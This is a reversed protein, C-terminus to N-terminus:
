WSLGLIKTLFWIEGMLFGLFIRVLWEQFRNIGLYKKYYHLKSKHLLAQKRLISKVSKDISVSHLHVYSQDLLLVTGYGKKKLQFGLIKEEYYLFVEEDYLGCEMLAHIDAMFLSGLVADVYVYREKEREQGNKKEDQYEGLTNGGQPKKFDAKLEPRDNLWPAFLRRTILGTDLLDRALGNIRWSSLAIAGTGDRTVAAAVGLRSTKLFSDKMARICEESVKVDPNAILVHTAHLTGAAYRIGLNNGYGYGGNRESHIFHVKGGEITKLKSLSDDTSCNDVVVISDLTQYNAISNVLSITTEADNYNLVICSINM